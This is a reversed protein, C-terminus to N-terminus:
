NKEEYEDFIKKTLISSNETKNLLLSIIKQKIEFNPNGGLIIDTGRGAMNTAITIAFPKGAQAIVENERRVNEPKANLVQHPIESLQFLESLFESKEVSATGILLPQGKQFCEKAKKLVAKWKILETQYVLDSLDQRIMPKSTKLVEVKLNYIDQFEKEATKATGTM